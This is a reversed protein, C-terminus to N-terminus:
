RSTLLPGQKGEEEGANEASKINMFARMKALKGVKNALVFAALKNGKSHANKGLM